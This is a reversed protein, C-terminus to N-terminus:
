NVSIGKERLFFHNCANHSIDVLNWTGLGLDWTGLGLDWTGFIIDIVKIKLRFTLRDQYYSNKKIIMSALFGLKCPEM